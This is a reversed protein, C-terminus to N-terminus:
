RYIAGRLIGSRQLYHAAGALTLNAWGQFAEQKGGHVRTRIGDPVGNQKAERLGYSGNLKRTLALANRQPM